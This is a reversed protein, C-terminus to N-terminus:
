PRGTSWQGRGAQQAERQAALFRKKYRDAYPFETRARALGARILEENLMRDGVYVYALFRGHVDVRDRTDLEIRVARGAVLQKTFQSAEPGWPQVPHDPHVTEPTDAGILRVRAFNELLLTDGDIVKQVHYTGPPLSEPPAPPGFQDLAVRLAVLLLLIVVAALTWRRPRRFKRVM